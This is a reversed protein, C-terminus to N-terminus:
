HFSYTFELNIGWDNTAATTSAPKSDYTYYFKFGIKLDNNIISVKPALNFNIRYRGWNTFYPVFSIDTDVWVKPRTYKYVKWVVTAVGALDNTALSKDAGTGTSDYPIERQVSLGAGVYFRNWNNYALDRIGIFTLDARLKTGLESNQSLGLLTGLSWKKKLLREWSLTGDAKTSSLTDGQFTNYDDWDLIWNSKQKRYILNGSFSLTGLASGKTYNLGLSFNGSTRLWFNRRIPYIEVIEDLSVLERGNAMVINVMRDFGSTDLSGFYLLGNKMKIEFQKPSKMTNVYVEELSITGMGDMKWTVVGYTLKKLDGTLVDGNSHVITDIKQSIGQVATLMLLLVLLAGTTGKM